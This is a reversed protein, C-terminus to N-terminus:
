EVDFMEQLISFLSVERFHFDVFNLIVRVTLLDLFVKGFEDRTYEISWQSIRKNFLEKM